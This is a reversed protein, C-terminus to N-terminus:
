EVIEIQSPHHVIIEPAGRYEEVVGKVRVKKYLFMEEPPSPFKAADHPFIVVKFDVQWHPSFLLWVVDCSVVRTEVILGEVTVVKGYYKAADKWSIVKSVAEGGAAKWDGEITAELTAVAEEDEFIIGLERNFDLSTASINISGVLARRGDAVIAKAHVFPSTLYRVKVGGKKLRDLGPENAKIDPPVIVRVKVGREAASILHDEVEEDQIELQELDLSGTAGDILNLIRERSNVPSWVLHPKDVQPARREWDAKFFAMVEEVVAPDTTVVGYERNRTFASHTQNLTMILAKRGDIVISKEHTYLFTPNGWKVEVGAAQLESFIAENDVSGYPNEELMVKVSVGRAAADKLAAIVEKETLLYVKMLIFSEAGRLAKVVPETGAEPEVFLTVPPPVPTPTSPPVCGVALSLVILITLALAPRRLKM